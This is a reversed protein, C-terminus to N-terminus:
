NVFITFPFFRSVWYWFFVLIVIILFDFAKNKWTNRIDHVDFVEFGDIAAKVCIVSILLGLVVWGFMSLMDYGRQLIM